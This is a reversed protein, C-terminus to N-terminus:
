INYCLKGHPHSTPTIFEHARKIPKAVNDTAIKDYQRAIRAIEQVTEAVLPVMLGTNIRALERPRVTRVDRPPHNLVAEVAKRTIVRFRTSNAYLEACIYDIKDQVVTSSNMVGNSALVLSFPILITCLAWTISFM